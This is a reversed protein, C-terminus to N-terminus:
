LDNNLGELTNKAHNYLSLDENSEAVERDKYANILDARKTQWTKFAEAATKAETHKKTAADVEKQAEKVAEDAAVKAAAAEDYKAKAANAENRLDTASKTADKTTEEPKNTTEAKTTEAMVPVTTTAGVVMSLALAAGLKKNMKMVLSRRIGM